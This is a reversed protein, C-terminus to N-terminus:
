IRAVHLTSVWPPVGGDFKPYPKGRGIHLMDDASAPLTWRLEHLVEVSSKHRELEVIGINTDGVSLYNMYQLFPGHDAAQTAYWAKVRKDPDYRNPGRKDVVARTGLHELHLDRTGNGYAPVAIQKGGVEVIDMAPAALGLCYLLLLNLRKIQVVTNGADVMVDGAAEAVPDVYKMPNKAAAILDEILTKGYKTASAVPHLVIEEALDWIRTRVEDSFMDFDADSVGIAKLAAHFEADTLEPPDALLPNYSSTLVLDTLGLVRTLVESNKSSSSCLQLFEYRLETANAAARTKAEALKPRRSALETYAYHVDGSLVVISNRHARFKDVLKDLAAANFHWAEADLAEDGSESLAPAGTDRWAMKARQAVEVMLFGAIPAPSVLVLPRTPAPGKLSKLQMDIAATTLLADRGAERGRWTRTDLVIVDFDPGVYNYNWLKRTAAYDSANAGDANLLGRIKADSSAIFPPPALPTNAPAEVAELLKAGTKGTAYDAPQNGWDQFIAYALLGNRIIRAPVPRNSLRARQDPMFWDDTVDHDDFIMYTAINALAKRASPLTLRFLDLAARKAKDKADAHADAAPMRFWLKESWALLYMACWEQFGLLHHTYYAREKSRASRAKFGVAQLFPSRDTKDAVVADRPYMHAKATIDDIVQIKGLFEKPLPVPEYDSDPGLREQWDFLADATLSVCQLMDAAVDDAYIQDGTLYLQQPRTKPDTATDLLATYLLPLADYGGGHPKRCSAHAIRLGGNEFANPLVFSPRKLTGLGLELGDLLSQMNGNTGAARVDYQYIQGPTLAVNGVGILAVYLAAGLRVVRVNTSDGYRTTTGWATIGAAIELNLGTPQRDLAIWVHVGTTDVRRVIPGALVQPLDSM